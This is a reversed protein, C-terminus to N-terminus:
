DLMTMAKRIDEGVLRWDQAELLPADLNRLKINTTGGIDLISGFGIWFPSFTTRKRLRMRNEKRNSKM